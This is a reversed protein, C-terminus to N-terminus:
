CCDIVMRFAAQTKTKGGGILLEHERGIGAINFTSEYSKALQSASKIINPDHIRQILRAEELLVRGVNKGKSVVLKGDKYQAKIAEIESEINQLEEEIVCSPFFIKDLFNNLFLLM